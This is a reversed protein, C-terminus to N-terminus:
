EDLADETSPVEDDGGSVDTAAMVESCDEYEVTPPQAGDTCSTHGWSWTSSDCERIVQGVLDPPLPPGLVPSCHVYTDPPYVWGWYSTIKRFRAEATGPVVVCVAVVVLFAVATRTNM